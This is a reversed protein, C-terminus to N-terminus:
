EAGGFVIRGSSAAVGNVMYKFYLKSEDPTNSLELLVENGPVVVQQFKIAELRLFAGDISFHPKGFHVAWKLQVVGPLIKARDFHGEFYFLDEPMKLTLQWVDGETKESLLEPFLVKNEEMAPSM